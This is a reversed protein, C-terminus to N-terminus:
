GGDGPEGGGGVAVAKWGLSMSIAQGISIDISLELSFDCATDSPDPDDAIAASTADQSLPGVPPKSPGSFVRSISNSGSTPCSSPSRATIRSCHFAMKSCTLGEM